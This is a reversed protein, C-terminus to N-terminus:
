TGKDDDLRKREARELELELRQSTKIVREELHEYKAAMSKICDHEQDNIKIVDCKECRIVRFECTDKHRGYDKQFMESECGFNTCKITAYDCEKQHKELSGYPIM